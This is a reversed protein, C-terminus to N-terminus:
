NTSHLSINLIYLKDTSDDEKLKKNEEKLKENEEQLDKVLSTSLKLLFEKKEKDNSKNFEERIEEM